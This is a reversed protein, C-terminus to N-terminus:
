KSEALFCRCRERIRQPCESHDPSRSCVDRTFDLVAYGFDSPDFDHEFFRDVLELFWKRRRTEGHWEFGLYRGLLRVINADVFAAHECRHLALFAGAVYPGVGPLAEIEERTDPVAGGVEELKEGLQKIFKARWRLGLSYMAQEIEEVTAEALKTPTSFREFFEHYTSAVAEARTRQLLIETVLLKWEDEDETRWPFDYDAPEWWEIIGEQLAKWDDDTANIQLPESM